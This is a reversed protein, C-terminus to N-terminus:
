IHILSLGSQTDAEQPLFKFLLGNLMRNKHRHLYQLVNRELREICETHIYMGIIICLYRQRKYVDLHTYSVPTTDGSRKDDM